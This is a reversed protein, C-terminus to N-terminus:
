RRSRLTAVLRVLRDVGLGFPYVLILGFSEVYDNGFLARVSLVMLAAAVSSMVFVRKSHSSKLFGWGLLGLVFVVFIRGYWNLAALFTIM